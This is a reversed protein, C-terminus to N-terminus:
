LTASCALSRGVTFSFGRSSPSSYCDAGAPKSEVLTPQGLLGCQVQIASSEVGPM